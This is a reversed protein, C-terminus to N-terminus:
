VNDEGVSEFSKYIDNAMTLLEEDKLYNNTLSVSFKGKIIPLTISPFGGFNGILLNNDMADIFSDYVNIKENIKKIYGTGVPLILSDYEKFQKKFFDVIQRRVKKANLFYKTQNEKNLSYSGIILRRKTYNSLGKTRSNIYVDEFTDGKEREGFIIGNLNSLNSTAESCSIVLYTPLMANLLKKDMSVSDITYGKKELESIYKKFTNIHNILYENRNVYNNIDLLEEIYFLKKTKLEVDKTLNMKSSDITVMDKKDKGKIINAIIRADEVTTSLIGVTDLSSAYPFMGYRSILGYSPKYGIVGNYHAPKRISDGTDSGISFPVLGLAVSVASGASSGGSILEKNLANKVPGLHCNEGTGGLGFEDLTTKGILIAGSNKLKEYVTSDFVPTYNKLIDSSGTTKIDKTSFNDKLTYPVGSLINTNKVIEPNINITEFINYEKNLDNSKLILSYIEELSDTINKLYLDNYYKINKM